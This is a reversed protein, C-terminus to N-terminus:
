NSRQLQSWCGNFCCISRSCRPCCRPWSVKFLWLFLIIKYRTYQQMDVYLNKKIIELEMCGTIAFDRIILHFTKRSFFYLFRELFINRFFHTIKIIWILFTKLFLNSVRWGVLTFITILADTNFNGDADVLTTVDVTSIADVLATQDM